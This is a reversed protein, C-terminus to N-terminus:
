QTVAMVRMGLRKGGEKDLVHITTQRPRFGDPLPVSGRLNQFGALTIALPDLKVTDDARGSAGALVFQVVGVLPRAGARADRSLMVDYALRDGEITFRAQRVQVAGGRPDPPLTAVLAALEARVQEAADRGAAAEQQATQAQALAADLRRRTDALEGQLRTREAEAQTHRRQLDSSEAASLRPPLHREQVYIVGGAGAAVGVLLLWAWAPVRRRRRRGGYPDFAVPKFM